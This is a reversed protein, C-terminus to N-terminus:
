LSAARRSLLLLLYRVVPFKIAIFGQLVTHLHLPESGRSLVYNSLQGWWNSLAGLSTIIRVSNPLPLPKVRIKARAKLQAAEHLTFIISSLRSLLAAPFHPYLFRIRIRNKMGAKTPRQLIIIYRTLPREREYAQLRYSKNMKKDKMKPVADQVSVKEAECRAFTYFLMGFTVIAMGVIFNMTIERGFMINSALVVTWDKALGSLSLKMVTSRHICMAVTMNLALAVAVNGAIVYCFSPPRKTTEQLVNELEIVCMPFFLIIACCPAYVALMEAPTPKDVGRRPAASSLTEVKSSPSATVAKLSPPPKATLLTENDVSEVVGHVQRQGAMLKQLLVVQLTQLFIGTVQLIVGHWSARLSGSLGLWVGFVCATLSLFVRGTLETLGFAVSLLYACMPSLSALLQAFSLPLRELAINRMTISLSFLAATVAVIPWHPRVSPRPWMENWRLKKWLAFAQFAVCAGFMHLFGLSVPFNFGEHSLIRKNYLSLSISLLAWTAICLFSKM